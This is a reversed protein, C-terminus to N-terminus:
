WCIPGCGLGRLGTVMGAEMDSQLMFESVENQKIITNRTFKKSIKSLEVEGNVILPGDPLLCPLFYEKTEEKLFEYMNYPVALFYFGNKFYKKYRNNKM